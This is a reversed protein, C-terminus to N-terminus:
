AHSHDQGFIYAAFEKLAAEYVPYKFEVVQHLPYWYDVWRWANFEPTSTMDLRINAQTTRIKLLYWQQKQGIVLPRMHHRVLHEPLRYQLLAQSSAIIEVDQKGLGIEEHLERFLAQEFTEDDQVGGQPFQWANMGVRRAWFLQQQDNTLIIGVGERYGKADILPIM